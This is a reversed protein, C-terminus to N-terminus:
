DLRKIIIEGTLINPPIIKELNEHFEKIPIWEDLVLDMEEYKIFNCQYKGIFSIIKLSKATDKLLLRNFEFCIYMISSRLGLFIESEHGEVDIKCFKPVGHQECLKELTTVKVKEKTPWSLNSYNAFASIFDKSLTSCENTEACIFLEDERVNRGLAYNCLKVRENHLYKKKLIEFCKRQPEVAVVKAGIKLLCDTREGINAGIDFCLDGQHVFKKYFTILQREKLKKRIFRPIYM